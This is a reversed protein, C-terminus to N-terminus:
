DSSCSLGKNPPFLREDDLLKEIWNLLYDIYTKAPVRTPTKYKYKDAWLYEFSSIVSTYAQFVQCRSVYVSLLLKYM